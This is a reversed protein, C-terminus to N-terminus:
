NAAIQYSGLPEPMTKFSIQEQIEPLWNNIMQIVYSKADIYDDDNNKLKPDFTLLQETTKFDSETLAYEKAKIMAAWPSFRQVKRGTAYLDVFRINEIGRTACLFNFVFKLSAQYAVSEIGVVNIHWKYCLAIVREFLNIPDIGVGGDTEVSQWCEGNWGHVAMVTEHAWTRDSIALDLTMCSYEVDEPYIEPLYYIEDAKILGKGIGIPMNMMEAFWIDTMGAKLYEIFDQKLKEIPWADPWLPQGNSLLAGYLRSFWYESACHEKLMCKNSIMNGIHIIKHDFKDLCKRFTGYFWRKLKLFLEETAINDKDELDDVIALQPRRHRINIGRVSQGAGLARLICLKDQWSGDDQPIKIKFIYLGVGDQKTIFEPPGFVSAFNESEFFGIIDNCAPVAITSVNSLYIVFQYDTFLLYKVAALKALTTKAHDRPLAFACLRVATSTMLHFVDIHFPPVPHTLEEGLFFQIFFESDHKLAYIIEGTNIQVPFLGVKPM